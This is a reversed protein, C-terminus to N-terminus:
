KVNKLSAHSNEEMEFWYKDFALSINNFSDGGNGWFSNQNISTIIGGPFLNSILWRSYYYARPLIDVVARGIAM